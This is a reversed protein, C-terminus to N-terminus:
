LITDQSILIAHRTSGLNKAQAYDLGDRPKCVNCKEVM